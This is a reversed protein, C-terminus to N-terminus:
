VFHASDITVLNTFVAHFIPCGDSDYRLIASDMKCWVYQNKHAQLRLEISIPNRTAMANGIAQFVRSRDEPHILDDLLADRNRYDEKTTGLLRCSTENLFLPTFRLDSHVKFLAVGCNIVDILKKMEKAQAKLAQSKEINRSVDAFTLRCLKSDTSNQGTANIKIYDGNANKIRCDFYIYRSAKDNLRKATEERDHPIIINYLSLKERVIEEQDMGIFEAFHKDCETIILDDARNVVCHMFAVQFAIEEKESTFIM